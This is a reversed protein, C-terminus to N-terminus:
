EDASLHLRSAAPSFALNHYAGHGAIGIHLHLGDERM